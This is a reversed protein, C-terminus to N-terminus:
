SKKDNGQNEHEYAISHLENAWDEDNYGDEDAIADAICTLEESTEAVDIAKLYLEKAWPKDNLLSSDSLSDAICYFGYANSAKQICEKYLTAAINEDTYGSDKNALADALNRLDRINTIKTITIDLLEKAWDMDNIGSSRGVYFALEKYERFEQANEVAEDFLAEAIELNNNFDDGCLRNAWYAINVNHELDKVLSKINNNLAYVNKIEELLKKDHM